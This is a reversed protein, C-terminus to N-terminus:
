AEVRFRAPGTKMQGIRAAPPYRGARIRALIADARDAACTVLLGGSTQPDTLLHRRWEPRDDPLDVEAGFAAWNRYSAGTVFGKQALAAARPLLPLTDAEFRFTLGAGPAFELGHGLIGFGTV